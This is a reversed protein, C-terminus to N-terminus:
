NKERTLKLSCFNVRYRTEVTNKALIIWLYPRVNFNKQVTTMYALHAATSSPLQRRTWVAETQFISFMNIRQLVSKDTLDAFCSLSVGESNRMLIKIFDILLPKFFVKKAVYYRNLPGV